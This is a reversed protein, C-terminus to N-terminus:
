SANNKERFCIKTYAIVMPALLFGSSAWPENLLALEPDEPSLVLSRTGILRLHNIQKPPYLRGTKDKIRSLAWLDNNFRPTLFAIPLNDSTVIGYANEKDRYWVARAKLPAESLNLCQQQAKISEAENFYQRGVLYTASLDGERGIEMMLSDKERLYSFTRKSQELNSSVLKAFGTGTRLQNRARTAGVFIIRTEEDGVERDDPQTPLLLLVTEAERGKSGHITGLVPGVFGFDPLCLSLPPQRSSLKHRLTPLDISKGVGAVQFLRQWADTANLGGRTGSQTRHDWLNQFEDDDVRKSLVESFCASIWPYICNPLGGLRLRHPQEGFQASAMLVEARRRFLVLSKGPIDSIKSLKSAQLNDDEALRRIEDRIEKEKQSPCDSPALVMARVTTFIKHLNPVSTRHVKELALSKFKQLKRIRGPLAEIMEIACNISESNEAFGYIAQAEDSFVTVGCASSVKNLLGLVFDARIGVIDQAEDIIIHETQEIHDAADPDTLIINLAENVAAEYDGSLTTSGDFGTRLSWAYSDLTIIKIGASIDQPVYESIRQRIEHVATHTFSVILCRTPEVNSINILNALRACAVATKGTGPGADVILKLDSPANIVALQSDDWTPIPIDSSPSNSPTSKGDIKEHSNESSPGVKLNSPPKDLYVVGDIVPWLQKKYTIAVQGNLNRLPRSIRDVVVGGRM